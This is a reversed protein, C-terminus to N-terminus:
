KGAEPLSSYSQSGELRLKALDYPSLWWRNEKEYLEWDPLRYKSRRLYFRLEFVQPFAKWPIFTTHPSRLTKWSRATRSVTGDFWHCKLRTLFFAQATTRSCSVIKEAHVARRGFTCSGRSPNVCYLPWPPNWEAEWVAGGAPTLTYCPGVETDYYDNKDTLWGYDQWRRLLLRVHDDSFGHSFPLNAHIAFVEEYCTYLPYTSGDFFWDFLMLEDNSLGSTGTRYRFYESRTLSTM